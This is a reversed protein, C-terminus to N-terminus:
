VLQLMSVASSLKLGDYLNKRDISDIVNRKVKQISNILIRGRIGLGLVKSEFGENMPAKPTKKVATVPSSITISQHEFILAAIITTM